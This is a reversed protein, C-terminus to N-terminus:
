RMIFSPYGGEAEETLRRRYRVAGGTYFMLRPTEDRDLNSNYGTLWSKNKSLLVKDAMERVHEYWQKEADQMVEMHTYRHKWMYKLLDTSWDVIEEIGRPFNTAGSGGQPGVLTILNPFGASQVGLANIPGDIWKDKLRQGDAGRFDIRDFAGTVADFGTAYIIVDFEFDEETTRIGARTVREIPTESANVLRVNPRNYQEYYRTELPVRRTGFGHDKPILNDATVPDHVRERIKKAVFESLAANAREDLMTDIFNGLWIGFGPATYLEEWLALREQEPVELTRRRLPGHLFGGPTERCRDFIEQYSAKIRNMEAADLPGNGLPACWNPHRQFVTLQGVEAAITSIVQVGTSGTGIVAVRKGKLDIGEEPWYFTHFSRGAFDDMGEIRPLTPISLHGIATLLFRTTLERGDELKVTWIDNEDDFSAAVVTVGFQIHERLGFKDAVHNLYRLTEPQAAFRESWDWEQLLEASFSYGYSYSESDFRCGPYRNRYWTGGLGENRELVTVDVGLELLRHLQYLGCIGAGIIVVEHEPRKTHPTLNALHPAVPTMFMVIFRNSTM